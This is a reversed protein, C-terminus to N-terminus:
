RPAGVQLRWDGIVNFPAWFFPHQMGPQHLVALQAKQMAMQLDTGRALEGYLTSMLLKTADDSVPWLSVIMSSAGASLFSRTFGLVEDGNAIRGLGSECASLTVLAVDDLKLNLVEHAELFDMKGDQSALLIRSYLPDITDAQAHAAVHILRARTTSQEFRQKTAESRLYIQAKPFDASLAKVEAEAGPLAYKPAVQPNGFAVLNANVRRSREILQMAISASPALAIPHREIMYQDDVRLAQFPLYHLPGHPVVLLRTGPALGLPKVLLDGLQGAADVASRRGNIIATRFAGVLKILQERPIPFNHEHLGDPAVVWVLLRDPLTQFEVIREDPRLMKQLAAAGVARDPATTRTSHESVTDLLARARGQESIDFANAADGLQSYLDIAQEYVQQVDAFLGMKFEDSRFRSRVGALGDLAKVLEDAAQKRHGMALDSHGVGVQAWFRYYAGDDGGSASALQQYAKRADAPKNEKLLLRAETRQLQTALVSNDGAKVQDLQQRAKRLDGAEILANALSIQVLPRYRDSSAGMAKQYDRIAQDYHGQRAGIDGLVKYVPGVVQAADKPKHKLAERAFQEAKDLSGAYSYVIALDRYAKAQLDDNKSQLAVYLATSAARVSQRFAGKEALAVAQSCYEYGDLKVPQSEYLLAGDATLALATDADRLREMANLATSTDVNDASRSPLAPLDQAAATAALLMWAAGAAFRAIMRPTM